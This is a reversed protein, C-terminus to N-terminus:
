LRRRARERHGESFCDQREPELMGREVSWEVHGIRALESLGYHIEDKMVLDIVGPKLFFRQGGSIASRGSRM